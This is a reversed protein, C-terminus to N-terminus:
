LHTRKFDFPNLVCFLAVFFPANISGKFIDVM